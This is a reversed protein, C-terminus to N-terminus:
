VFRLFPDDRNGLVANCADMWLDWHGERWHPDSITSIIKSINGEEGLSAWIQLYKIMIDFSQSCTYSGDNSSTRAAKEWDHWVAIDVPRMRSEMLSMGSLLNGLDDSPDKKYWTDLFSFAARYMQLFDFRMCVNKRSNM